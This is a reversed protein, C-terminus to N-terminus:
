VHAPEKGAGNFRAVAYRIADDRHRACHLVDRTKRLQVNSPCKFCRSIGRKDLFDNAMAEGKTRAMVNVYAQFPIPDLQLVKKFLRKAEWKKYATWVKM